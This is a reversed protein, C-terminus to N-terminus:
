RDTYGQQTTATATGTITRAPVGFAGLLVMPQRRTVTVRVTNTDARVAGDWGNANLYARAAAEAGIPDLAPTGQDYLTATDIVQAGARAAQEADNVAARTGAILQGGDYVLGAVALVITTALTM